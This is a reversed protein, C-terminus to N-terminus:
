FLDKIVDTLLYLGLNDREQDNFEKSTALILARGMHRFSEHRDECDRALDVLNRIADFVSSEHTKM